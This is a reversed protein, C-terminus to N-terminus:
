RRAPAAGRRRRRGPGLRRTLSPARRFAELGMAGGDGRLVLLPVDIRAERLVREVIGPPASSSRCSRPTSPPAHRDADRARLHRDARPRRVGAPRARARARRRPREHEPADVAYAGSVAIAACGLRRSGTSRRTSAGTARPRRTADLFVHETHLVRGAALPLEGVRTRKRARRLDPRRRHRRRRRARRRGRAAREDGADDLLRRARRSARRRRARRAAAAAGRRRGRHRRRARDHTTPVVAHPACRSRRPTSRSRRPSRAASTSASACVGRLSADTRRHRRSRARAAGCRARHRLGVRRRRTSRRAARGARHARATPHIGTLEAVFVPLRAWDVAIPTM